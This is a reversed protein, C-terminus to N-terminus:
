LRLTSPPLNFYYVTNERVSLFNDSFDDVLVGHVDSVVASLRNRLDRYLRPSVERSFWRHLSSPAPLWSLYGRPAPHPISLSHLASVCWHSWTGQGASSLRFISATVLPRPSAHDVPCLRGFLSFARGLALHLAM